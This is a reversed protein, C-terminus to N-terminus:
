INYINNSGQIEIYKHISLIDVRDKERDYDTKCAIVEEIRVFPLGNIIVADKILKMRDPCYKGDTPEDQLTTVDAEGKRLMAFGNAQIEDWGDTKLKKYLEPTVIIDLDAAKRIGFVELLASGFVAYHSKPLNYKEIREFINEM